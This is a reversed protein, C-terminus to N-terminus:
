ATTRELLEHSDIDMLRDHRGSFDGIETAVASVRQTLAEFTHEGLNPYDEWLLWNEPDTVHNAIIRWALTVAEDDTLGMGEEDSM